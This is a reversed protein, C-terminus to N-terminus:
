IQRESILKEWKREYDTVWFHFHAFCRKKKISRQLRIKWLCLTILFTWFTILATTREPTATMVWYSNPQFYDIVHHYSQAGAKHLRMLWNIYDFYDKLFFQKLTLSKQFDNTRQLSIKCKSRKIERVLNELTRWNQGGLIKQYDSKAKNLIINEISLLNIVKETKLKYYM